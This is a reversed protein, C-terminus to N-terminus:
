VWMFKECVAMSPRDNNDKCNVMGIFNVINSFFIKTSGLLWTTGFGFVRPDDKISTKYGVDGVRM